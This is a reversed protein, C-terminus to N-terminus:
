QIKSAEVRVESIGACQLQARLTAIEDLLDLALAVGPPNIELDRSLRQALRARRLSDGSFLWDRPTEGQPALIGEVVWIMVHDIEANCAQCLEVITLQVEEEVVDGQLFTMENEIM